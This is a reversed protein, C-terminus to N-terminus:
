EKSALLVVAGESTQTRYSAGPPIVTMEGGGLTVTGLETELTLSDQQVLFLQSGSSSVHEDAEGEYRIVSLALDDVATLKRAVAPEELSSATAGISAPNIEGAGKLVFLKRQGNQRNSFFRREFVLATTRAASGCRHTVAKPVVAMEGSRLMNNGWETELALEGDITLFLQEQDIHKHWAVMGESVFLRAAFDDIEALDVVLFPQDLKKAEELVNIKVIPM